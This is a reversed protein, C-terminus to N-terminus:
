EEKRMESKRKGRAHMLLLFGRFARRDRPSALESLVNIHRHKRHSVVQPIREFERYNSALENHSMVGKTRWQFNFCAFPTKKKKNKEGFTQSEFSIRM